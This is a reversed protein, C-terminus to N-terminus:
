TSYLHSWIISIVCRFRSSGGEAIVSEVKAAQYRHIKWLIIFFPHPPPFSRAAACLLMLPTLTSCCLIVM